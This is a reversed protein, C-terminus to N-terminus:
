REECTEEEPAAPAVYQYSYPRTDKTRVAGGLAVLRRLIRDAWGFRVWRSRVPNTVTREYLAAAVQHPNLWANPHEALYRLVVEQSVGWATV